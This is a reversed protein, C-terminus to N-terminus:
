LLYVNNPDMLVRNQMKRTDTMGMREKMKRYKKGGRRRKPKDEGFNLPKKKQAM